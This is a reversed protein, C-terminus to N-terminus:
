RDPKLVFRIPVDVSVTVPMGMKRAPEFKWSRVAALASQDLLTYGSSIKIKLVGARGEPLIEAHVVVIGQQGRLRAEPPYVPSANERYRPRAMTSVAAPAQTEANSYTQVSIAAADKDGAPVSQSAAPIEEGRNGAVAVPNTDPKGTEKAPPLFAPIQTVSEKVVSPQRRKETEPLPAGGPVPIQKKETSPAFDAWTVWTAQLPRDLGASPAQGSQVCLVVAVVAHLLLSLIVAMKVPAKIGGAPTFRNAPTSARRDAEPAVPFGPLFLAAEPESDFLVSQDPVPISPNQMM